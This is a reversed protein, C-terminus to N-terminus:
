VCPLPPLVYREEGDRNAMQIEILVSQVCVYSFYLAFNSNLHRM